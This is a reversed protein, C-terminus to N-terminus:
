TAASRSPHKLWEVTEKLSSAAEHPPRKAATFATQARRMCVMAVVGLVVAVILAALWTLGGLVYRSLVLVLFAVTAGGACLGLAAAIGLMVGGRRLSVISEVAETRALQLEKRVLEATGDSLDILLEGISRDVPRHHHTVGDGRPTAPGGTVVPRGASTAM